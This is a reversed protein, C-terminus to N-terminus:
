GISKSINTYVKAWPDVCRKIRPGIRELAELATIGAKMMTLYRRPSLKSVFNVVQPSLSNSLLGSATQTKELQGFYILEWRIRVTSSM